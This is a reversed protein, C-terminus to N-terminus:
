PTERRAAARRLRDNIAAGIGVDPIPAFAIGKFPARDLARLTAYLNAAAEVPDGAPSLNVTADAPANPGFAVFAENAEGTAADTRVPLRPAYHSALMGPGHLADGEPPADLPGIAAEIAERTVFGPRLLRPRDLLSVVTSEIGVPTRGGDIVLDVADGLEAVVAAADTPSVRGSRNASPAAIPKGAAAIIAKAVPHDPCRLAISSLGASAAPAAPCDASRPLVLTLPGPWFREALKDARGDFRALRRAAALDAVHVIVPNRAPRGKARYLAAIAAENTADVGLGYVTETPFAVLRGAGLLHAAEAITERTAPVASRAEAVSPPM